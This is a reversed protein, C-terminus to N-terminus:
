GDLRNMYYKVFKSIKKFGYYVSFKKYYAHTYYFLSKREEKKRPAIKHIAYFFGRRRFQRHGKRRRVLRFRIWNKIRFKQLSLLLGVPNVFDPYAFQISEFKLLGLSGNPPKLLSKSFRLRKVKNGTHKFEPCSVLHTKYFLFKKIVGTRLTFTSWKLRRLFQWTCRYRQKFYKYKSILSLRRTALKKYRLFVKKKTYSFHKSLLKGWLEDSFRKYVFFKRFKQM